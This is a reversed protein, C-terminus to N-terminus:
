YFVVEWLTCQEYLKFFFVFFGCSGLIVRADFSVYFYGSCALWARPVATLGWCLAAPPLLGHGTHLASVYFFGRSGKQFVKRGRILSKHVIRSGWLMFVLSGVGMGEAQWPKEQERRNTVSQLPSYTRPGWSRLGWSSTEWPRLAPWPSPVEQGQGSSPVM